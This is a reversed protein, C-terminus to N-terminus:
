FKKRNKKKGARGRKGGGEEKRPLSLTSLNVLLTSRQERYKTERM